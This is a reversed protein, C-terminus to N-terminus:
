DVFIDRLITRRAESAIPISPLKFMGSLVFSSYDAEAKVIIQSGLTAQVSPDADTGSPCYEVPANLGPGDEDYEITLQLELFLSRGHIQNRIGECDQYHEVGSLDAGVSAGYRAADRTAGSVSSITIMLRGFDVIGLVILLLVPLVLAFELLGQGRRTKGWRRINFWSITFNNV